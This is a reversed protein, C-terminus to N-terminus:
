TLVLERIPPRCLDQVVRELRLIKESMITSMRQESNSVICSMQLLVIKSNNLINLFKTLRFIYNQLVGVTGGVLKRAGDVALIEALPLEKYYKSGTESQFLTISKTDLRWYHRKVTRDKNTFHVM